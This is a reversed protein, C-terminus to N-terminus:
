FPVLFCGWVISCCNRWLLDSRSDLGYDVGSDEVSSDEGSDMESNDRM